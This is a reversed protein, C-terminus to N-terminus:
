PRWKRDEDDEPMVDDIRLACLRKGLRVPIPIDFIVSQGLKRGNGGLDLDEVILGRMQAAEPTLM